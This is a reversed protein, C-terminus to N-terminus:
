KLCYLAPLGAAIDHGAAPLGSIDLPGTLGQQAHMSIVCQAHSFIGSAGLCQSCTRVPSGSLLLAHNLKSKISCSIMDKMPYAERRSHGESYVDPDMGGKLRSQGSIGIVECLNSSWATRHQWGFLPM